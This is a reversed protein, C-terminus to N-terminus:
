LGSPAVVYIQHNFSPDRQSYDFLTGQYVEMSGKPVDAHNAHWWMGTAEDLYGFDFNFGGGPKVEHYNWDTMNVKGSGDPKYKVPDASYFRVSFIIYKAKPNALEAQQKAAQARGLTNYGGRAKTVDAGSAGLVCSTIGICGADIDMKQINNMETGTMKPWAKTVFDDRSFTREGVPPELNQTALTKSKGIGNYSWGKKGYYMDHRLNFYDKGGITEKTVRELKKHKKDLTVEYTGDSNATTQQVRKDETSLYELGDQDIGDIPRNSAFQYPTLMPYKAAIPDV